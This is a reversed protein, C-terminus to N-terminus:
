NKFNTEFRPVRTHCSPRSNKELYRQHYEEARYFYTAEELTTCVPWGREKLIQILHEIITKQEPTRYFVASRYQTGLDPGQRNLQTPDHIEFFLRALNQYSIKAPNFIIRVAEAYGTNGTSVEKYNPHNSQGGIYGSEAELVGPVARFQAEMGWFCGGAFIATEGKPEFTLSLSNVCYRTNKDTLGEGKFIHGLHGQCNKCTIETRLGDLDLSEAVARPHADDFSPWGCTSSFKQTSNFLPSGCQRCSYEGAENHQWFQGSGPPETGKDIIICKEEPSLPATKISM